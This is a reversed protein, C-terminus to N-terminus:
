LNEQVPRYGPFSVTVKAIGSADYSAKGEGDTKSTKCKGAEDVYAVVAGELPDGLHDLVTVSATDGSADVSADMELPEDFWIDMGPDGLLVLVFNTYRYPDGDDMLPSPAPIYNSLAGLWADGTRVVSEGYTLDLLEKIFGQGPPYGIGISTNGMYMVGGGDPNTLWLEGVADKGYSAFSGAYCACSIYVPYKPGNTLGKVDDRRLYGLYSELGHGLHIAMGIGDEMADVTNDVSHQIADPWNDADDYMKTIRMGEPIIQDAWKDLLLSSDIDYYGTPESMLLVHDLYDGAPDQEYALVKRVVTEAEAVTNVPLRGVAIEAHMDLGDNIEAYVGNGNGDWDGDLDAYYFDSPANDDTNYFGYTDTWVFIMRAPVEEADGGLVLYKLEPHEERLAKIGDRLEEAEDRGDSSLSQLDRVLVVRSPVGKQTRWEALPEFAPALSATTVILHEVRASDSPLSAGLAPGVEPVTDAAIATDTESLVDAAGPTGDDSEACGTAVSFALLLLAATLSTPRTM